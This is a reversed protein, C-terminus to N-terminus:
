SSSVLKFQLRTNGLQIEDGDELVKSAVERGNVKTPNTDSENIMTYQKNAHKIRFHQRSVSTDSEPLKIDCEDDRGVSMDARTINYTKGALPGETVIISARPELLKETPGAASAPTTEAKDAGAQRDPIIPVSAEKRRMIILVVLLVVVVIVAVIIAYLAYEEFWSPPSQRITPKGEKVAVTGKINVYEGAVPLEPTWVEILGEYEDKLTYTGELDPFDPDKPQPDKVIGELRVVQGEHEPSIDSIREIKTFVGSCSCAFTLTVILLFYIKRDM